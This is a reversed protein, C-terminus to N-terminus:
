NEELQQAEHMLQFAGINLLGVFSFLPLEGKTGVFRGMSGDQKVYQVVLVRGNEICGEPISPGWTGTAKERVLADYAEALETLTMAEPAQRDHESFAYNGLACVGPACGCVPGEHSAGQLRRCEAAM